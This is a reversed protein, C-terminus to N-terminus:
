HYPSWRSRGEKGVRREESRPSTGGGFDLTFGTHVTGPKPEPLPERPTSAGIWKPSVGATISFGAFLLRGALTAAFGTALPAFFALAAAARAERFGRVYDIARAFSDGVFPDACLPASIVNRSAIRYSM